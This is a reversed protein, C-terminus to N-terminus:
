IVIQRGKTYAQQSVKSLRVAWHVMPPAPPIQAYFASCCCCCFCSTYLSGVDAPLAQFLAMQRQALFGLCLDCWTFIADLTEHKQEVAISNAVFEVFVNYYLWNKGNKEVSPRRICKPWLPKLCKRPLGGEFVM